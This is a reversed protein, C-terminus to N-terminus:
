KASVRKEDLCLLHPHPFKVGNCYDFDDPAIFIFRTATENTIANPNTSAPQM